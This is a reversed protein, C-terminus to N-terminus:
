NRQRKPLISVMPSENDYSEDNFKRKRIEEITDVTNDDKHSMKARSIDRLTIIKKYDDGRNRSDQFKQVNRFINKKIKLKYLVKEIHKNIVMLDQVCREDAFQPLIGKMENMTDVIQNFNSIALKKCIRKKQEITKSAPKSDDGSKLSTAMSFISESDEQKLNMKPSEELNIIFEDKVQPSSHQEVNFIKHHSNRTTTSSKVPTTPKQGSEDFIDKLSVSIVQNSGQTANAYAYMESESEEENDDEDDEDENDDGNSSTIEKVANQIEDDGKEKKVNFLNSKNEKIPSSKETIDYHFPGFEEISPKDTENPRNFVDNGLICSNYIIDFGDKIRINEFEIFDFNSKKVTAQAAVDTFDTGLVFHCSHSTALPVTVFIWETQVLENPYQKQCLKINQLM